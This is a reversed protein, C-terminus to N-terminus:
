AALGLTESTHRMERQLNEYHVDLPHVRKPPRGPKPKGAGALVPKNPIGGAGEIEDVIWYWNGVTELAVPSGPECHALFSRCREASM